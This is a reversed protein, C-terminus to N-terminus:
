EMPKILGYRLLSNYFGDEQVGETINEAIKKVEENGNAMCVSHKCAKMMEIDNIGDGYCYADEKDLGLYELVKSVTNGKSEGIKGVDYALFGVEQRIDLKSGFREYLEKEEQKNKLLPVLLTADLGDDDEIYNDELSYLEIFKKYLGTNYVKRYKADPIMRFLVGNKEKVFEKMKKVLEEDIPKYYICKDNVYACQGNSGVYGTKVLKKVGLPFTAECRGSCLFVYHNKTLENFAYYTKESPNDMGNITDIITGDIDVFVAKKNM